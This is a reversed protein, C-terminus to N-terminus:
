KPHNGGWTTGTNNRGILALIQQGEFEINEGEDGDKKYKNQTRKHHKRWL